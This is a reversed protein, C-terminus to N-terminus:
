EGTTFKNEDMNNNNNKALKNVNKDIHYITTCISIIFILIIFLISFDPSSKERKKRGSYSYNYDRDDYLTNNDLQNNPNQNNNYYYRSTTNSSIGQLQNWQDDTFGCNRIGPCPCEPPGTCDGVNGAVIQQPQNQPKTNPNVLLIQEFLLSCGSVSGMQTTVLQNNICSNALNKIYIYQKYKIPSSNTSNIIDRPLVWDLNNSITNINYQQNDKETAILNLNSM